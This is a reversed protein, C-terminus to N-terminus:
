GIRAIAPAVYREWCSDRIPVLETVGVADLSALQHCYGGKLRHLHDPGALADCGRCAM